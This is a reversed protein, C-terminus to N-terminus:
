RSIMGAPVGDTRHIPIAYRITRGAARLERELAPGLENLRTDDPVEMIVMVPQLM